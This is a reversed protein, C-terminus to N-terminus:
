AGARDDRHAWLDRLLAIEAGHHIVERNIHAVLDARSHASWPGEAPGCEAALGDEGWAKVGAVWAAYGADLQALAGDATGAYDFGVYDVEPGDFHAHVRAGFVGVILHSLRWAITTMPTPNPAPHAFDVTFDGRGGQMETLGQGRSHVSWADPTPAWFYELDTLGGLRPRLQGRWHWDLQEVLTESLLLPRNPQTTTTM